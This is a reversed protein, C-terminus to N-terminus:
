CLTIDEDEEDERFTNVTAAQQRAVVQQVVNSGWSKGMAGRMKYIDHGYPNSKVELEEDEDVYQAWDVKVNAPTLGKVLRGWRGVGLKFIDFGLGRGSASWRTKSSDIARLLQLRVTLPREESVLSVFMTGDDSLSVRPEEPESVDIQLAIRDQRESWQVRVGPPVLNGGDVIDSPGSSSVAEPFALSAEM